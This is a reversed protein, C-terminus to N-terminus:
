GGFENPDVGCEDFLALLEEYDPFSRETSNFEELYADAMCEAQDSDLGGEVFGEVMGDRFADDLGGGPITGLTSPVEFTTTPRGPETPPTTPDEVDTTTPDDVETTSSDTTTAETSVDSSADDDLDVGCATVALLLVLLPSVIRRLTM